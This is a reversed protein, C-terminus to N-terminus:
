LHNILERKRRKKFTVFTDFVIYDFLDVCDVFHMVYQAIVLKSALKSLRTTPV